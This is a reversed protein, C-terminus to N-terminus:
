NSHFPGTKISHLKSDPSLIKLQTAINLHLGHVQSSCLGTHDWNDTIRWGMLMRGGPRPEIIGNREPSTEM